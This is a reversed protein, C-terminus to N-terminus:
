KGQDIKNQQFVAYLFLLPLILGIALQVYDMVSSLTTANFVETALMTFIGIKYVLSLKKHKIAWVALVINIVACVLSVVISIVNLPTVEVAEGTEAMLDTMGPLALIILLALVAIFIALVSEIITLISTVKLLTTVPKNEM